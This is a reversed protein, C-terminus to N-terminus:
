DVIVLLGRTGLSLQWKWGEAASHFWIDRHLGHVASGTDACTYVREIPDGVIIFRQGLYAWDCAAAGDYVVTGDRMVGCFEGGDGGEPTEGQVCYYFSVTSEVIDGPRLMPTQLVDADIPYAAEIIAPEDERAAARDIIAANQEAVTPPRTLGRIPEIFPLSNDRDAARAVIAAYGEAITPPRTLGRMPEVFPLSNDRDAARAVIAAYGEAVTPPRTLGRMPEVFPLSNDRDAARAILAARLEESAVAAALASEAAFAEDRSISSIASSGTRREPVADIVTAAALVAVSSPAQGGAKGADAVSETSPSIQETLAVPQDTAVVLQSLTVAAVPSPTM